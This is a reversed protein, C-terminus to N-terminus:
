NGNRLSVSLSSMGNIFDPRSVSGSNSPDLTAFVAGAGMQQFAAPPSLAQFAATFQAQSISGAGAADIQNYLSSMKQRTPMSASPGTMTQVQAMMPAGLGQISTTM